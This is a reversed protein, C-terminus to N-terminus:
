DEQVGSARGGGARGVAEMKVQEALKTELGGAELKAEAEAEVGAEVEAKVEAEVGAEAKTEVEPEMEAGLWEAEM